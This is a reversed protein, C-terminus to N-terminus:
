LSSDSALLAQAGYRHCMYGELKQVDADSTYKAIIISYIKGDFNISGISNVYAEAPNYTGSTVDTDFQAGYQRKKLNTGDHYMAFVSNQSADLPNGASYTNTIQIM